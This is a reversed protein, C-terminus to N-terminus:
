KQIMDEFSVDFYELIKILTDYNPETEGMEWGSITRQTVGLLDGLEKQTMKKASRFLKLNKGFVNEKM